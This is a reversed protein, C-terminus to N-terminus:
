KVLNAQSRLAVWRGNRMVFVDMWAWTGSTDKGNYTSTETDSGQVVVVNGIVKVDMPGMVFSHLKLAGSRVDALYSQKTEIATGVLSRWDDAVYQSIKDADGAKTAVEWDLEVQKVADAASSGKAPPAAPTTQTQAFALGACACVMFAAWVIKKM